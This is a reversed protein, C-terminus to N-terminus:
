LVFFGVTLSATLIRQFGGLHPAISPYPPNVSDTVKCQMRAALSGRLEAGTGPLNASKDINVATM